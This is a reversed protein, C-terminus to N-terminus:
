GGSASRLYDQTLPRKALLKGETARWLLDEVPEPKRM